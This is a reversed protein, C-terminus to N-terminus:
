EGGGGRVDTHPVRGASFVDKSVYLELRDRYTGPSRKRLDRLVM